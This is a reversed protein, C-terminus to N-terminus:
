KFTKSPVMQETHFRWDQKHKKLMDIFQSHETETWKSHAGHNPRVRPLAKLKAVIEDNKTNTNTHILM